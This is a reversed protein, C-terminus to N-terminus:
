GPLLYQAVLLKILLNLKVLAGLTFVKKRARALAPNKLKNDRV